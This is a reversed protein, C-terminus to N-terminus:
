DHVHVIQAPLYSGGADDYFISVKKESVLATLLLSYVVKANETIESKTPDWYYRFFRGDACKFIVSKAVFDPYVLTVRLGSGYPDGADTWTMAANANMGFFLAALAIAVRAKM